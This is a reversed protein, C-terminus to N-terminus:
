SREHQEVFALLAAADMPEALLFGQYTACGEEALLARQQETEIGEAIVAIGLSRAMDIAGRVVVRDRESGAIDQALSKDLKLYDVPLTKLWALSSYGTGFDDIAVRCGAARLTALLAAAAPLDAMLGTETIEVTLRGHPMGSADVHDLFTQAFRTRALDGPTLNLSVRLRALAPPWAAVQALVLRQIHDSLALEIGAEAAAAFLRDAGLPGLRPHQWRALAEVGTVRGTTLSAQPQFALAIEGDDLAHHLDLALSSLSGGTKSHGESGTRDANARKARRLLAAADDGPRAGALAIRSGLLMATGGIRFPRDVAEEIRAAALIAHEAPGAIAVIFGPGPTRALLADDEDALAEIVSAIRREAAAVLRTGADRGHAANVLDLRLLQITVLTLTAAGSLRAGIWNSLVGDNVRRDRRLPRAAARLSDALALEGGVLHLHTAGANIAAGALAPDPILALVAGGRSAAEHVQGIARDIPGSMDVVDLGAAVDDLMTWGAAQIAQAAPAGAPWLRVNRDEDQGPGM